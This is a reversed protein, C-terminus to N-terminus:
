RRFVDPRLQERPVGTIREVAIVRELPIKRWKSIAQRTVHLAEALASASGIARIAIELGKDM